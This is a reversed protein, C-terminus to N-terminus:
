GPAVAKEVHWFQGAPVKEYEHPEYELGKSQALVGASVIKPCMEKPLYSWLSEYLQCAKKHLFFMELHALFDDCRKGIANQAPITGPKVM